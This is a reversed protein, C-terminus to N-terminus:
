YPCKRVIDGDDLAASLAFVFKGATKLGHLGLGDM